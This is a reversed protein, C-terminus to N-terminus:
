LGEFWKPYRKLLHQLVPVGDGPLRILALGEPPNLLIYSEPTVSAIRGYSDAFLSKVAYMEAHYKDFLQADTLDADARAYHPSRGSPTNVPVAPVDRMEGAMFRRYAASSKARWVKAVAGSESDALPWALYNTAIGPTPGPRDRNMKLCYGCRSSSLIWIPVGSGERGVPLAELIRRAGIAAPGGVAPVNAEAAILRHAPLALGALAASQVFRRRSLATM